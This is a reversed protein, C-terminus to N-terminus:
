TSLLGSGCNEIGPSGWTGGALGDRPHCRIRGNVSDDSWNQNTDIHEVHHIAGAGFVHGHRSSVDVGRSVDGRSLSMTLHDTRADNLRAVFLWLVLQANHWFTFQILRKM